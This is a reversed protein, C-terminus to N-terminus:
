TGKYILQQSYSVYAFTMDCLGTLFYGLYSFSISVDVKSSLICIEFQLYIYMCPLGLEYPRTLKAICINGRGGAPNACSCM